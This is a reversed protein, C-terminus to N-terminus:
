AKYPVLLWIHYPMGASEQKTVGTSKIHPEKAPQVVDYRLYEMYKSRLTHLIIEYTLNDTRDTGSIRIFCQVKYLLINKVVFSKLLLQSFLQKLYSNLIYSDM